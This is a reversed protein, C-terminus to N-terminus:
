HFQDGHALWHDSMENLIVFDLYKSTNARGTKSTDFPTTVTIISFKALSTHSQDFCVALPPSM